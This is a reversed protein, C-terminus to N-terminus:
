QQQREPAAFMPAQSDFHKIVLGSAGYRKACLGQTRRHMMATVRMLESVTFGLVLPYTFSGNCRECKVEVSQHEPKM